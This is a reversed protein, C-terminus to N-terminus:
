SLPKRELFCPQCRGCLTRPSWSDVCDPLGYYGRASCPSITLVELIYTGYLIWLIDTNQTSLPSVNYIVSSVNYFLHINTLSLLFSLLSSPPLSHTHTHSLSPSPSFALFIPISFTLTDCPPPPYIVEKDIECNRQLRMEEKDM